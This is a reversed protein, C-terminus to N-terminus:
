LEVEWLVKNGKLLAVREGFRQELVHRKIKLTPTLVENEVDWPEDVVLVGGLTAHSEMQGSVLEATDALAQRVQDRPMLSAGESLQVLAVPYPLGSGIVCVLEIHNNQALKRELPVPAVFKGKATKFNDKVRGTITVFQEDDITAQDGTRFFGDETFSEATAEPNKYYERFLGPSKFLLENNDGIKVECESGPKGVTGIKDPRFPFNLTAYAGNETMGWAETIDMGIKRYWHLLAPSVPASGCGLVKASNLGLQIRIKRAVLSGILPLKLLLNLKSEGVKDIINKQFLTWLRPVSLFFTPQAVKVDDVFTDLAEVFYVTGGSYFATGEIYVRETIHALPLYSIVRDQATAGLHNAVATGAWGYARYTVVAGKPNGTSGSTYIITMVDDLEPRADDLPDSMELLQHWHYQVPLSPYSMDFRLLDQSIADAQLEPNDLKGIFIAKAESHQLVYRITDANATPYIPISIFGGAQLALDTIFWQACNKSLIAVKDGRKLGLQRLAGALRYAAERTQAWTLDHLQRERPQRLFVTEGQVSCWHDLMQLPTQLTM